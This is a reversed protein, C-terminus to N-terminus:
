LALQLSEDSLLIYHFVCGWVRLQQPHFFLSVEVTHKSASRLIRQAFFFFIRPHMESVQTTITQKEKEKLPFLQPSYIPLSLM